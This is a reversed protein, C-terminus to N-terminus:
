FLYGLVDVSVVQTGDAGVTVNLSLTDGPGLSLTKSPMTLSWADNTAQFNTLAQTSGVNDYNAGLSGASVTAFTTVGTASTCRLVIQTVIFTSGLPVTFLPTVGTSNLSLNDVVAVRQANGGSWAVVGNEIRPVFFGPNGESSVQKFKVGSL